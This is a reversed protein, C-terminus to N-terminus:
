FKNKLYPNYEKEHKVWTAEGHGPLLVTADPLGEMFGVVSRVLQVADGGELDVRGISEKFISDGVFAIGQAGLRGVLAISGQTHGPLSYVSFAAQGVKFEDGPKLVADPYSAADEHSFFDSGRGPMTAQAIDPQALYFAPGQIEKGDAKDWSTESDFLGLRVAETRFSEVGGVHDKHGHTAVIGVMQLSQGETLDGDEALQSIFRALLAGEAGPDIVLVQGKSVYLYCNTALQGVELVFIRDRSHGGTLRGVEYAKSIDM